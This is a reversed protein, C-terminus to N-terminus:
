YSIYLVVKANLQGLQVNFFPRFKNIDVRERPLPAWREQFAKARRKACLVCKNLIVKIQQRIQTIWYKKRIHCMVSNIGAHLVDKHTKSIILRCLESSKTIIYPYIENESMGNNKLRRNVSM